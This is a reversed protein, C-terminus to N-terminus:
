ASHPDAENPLGLRARLEAWSEPEDEGRPHEHWYVVDRWDSLARESLHALVDLSGDSLDIIALLTQEYPAGDPLEEESPLRERALVGEGEAFTSRLSEAVALPLAMGGM